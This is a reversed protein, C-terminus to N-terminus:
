YEDQSYNWFAKLFSEKNYCIIYLLDNELDKSFFNGVFNNGETM